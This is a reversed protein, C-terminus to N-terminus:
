LKEKEEKSKNKRLSAMRAQASELLKEKEEKSKNQRNIKIKEKTVIRVKAKEEESKNARDMASLKRKYEKRHKQQALDLEEMNYFQQCTSKMKLHTLLRKLQKGCGLCVSYISSCDKELMKTPMLKNYLM